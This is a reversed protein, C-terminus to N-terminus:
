DGNQKLIRVNWTFDSGFLHSTVVGDPYESHRTAEFTRSFPASPIFFLYTEARLVRKHFEERGREGTLTFGRRRQEEFAPLPADM